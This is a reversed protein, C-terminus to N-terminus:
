FEVESKIKDWELKIHKKIGEEFLEFEVKLLSLLFSKNNLFILQNAYSIGRKSLEMRLDSTQTITKDFYYDHIMILNNIKLLLERENLRTDNLQYEILNKLRYLELRDIPTEQNTLFNYMLGNFKSSNIKLNKMSEIRERTVSNSYVTNKNIKITFVLTIIAVMATIITTILSIKQADQLNIFSQFM